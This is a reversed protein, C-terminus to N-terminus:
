TMSSSISIPQGRGGGYTTNTWPTYEEIRFNQGNDIAVVIIGTDGNAHLANLTEDVQWEGSFSTHADFVNQGDHMYLVPYSYNTNGYDPPLYLWIRRYRDLQPLYFSDSLISVNSAATSQGGGNGNLDEWGLIQLYITDGEAGSYSRNPIATGNANSEVKPWSGRTFKFLIDGTGAALTIQYRNLSTDKTLIYSADGPNWGQFDGAIYIADNGPTNNPIKDVIITLQASAVISTFLGILLGLFKRLM